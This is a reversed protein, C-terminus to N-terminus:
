SSAAKPTIDNLQDLITDAGEAYTHGTFVLALQKKELHGRIIGGDQATFAAADTRLVSTIVWASVFLLRIISASQVRM